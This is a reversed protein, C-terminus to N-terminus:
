QLQEVKRSTEDMHESMVKKALVEDKMKIADILQRHYYLGTEYGLLDVIGKMSVGLIDKLITHTSIVLDNRTMEAIKYHFDLDLKAFYKKDNKYRTMQSLISELQAIDEETAKKAALATSETEIVKRFELVELLSREGLYALPVMTNMVPGLSNIVFSGEGTKTELLGLATLKQLAQRVTVRSVQFIESLENESPIKDGPKWNGAIIQQKLQEFVQETINAKKIPKLGM